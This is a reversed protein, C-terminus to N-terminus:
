MRPGAVRGADRLRGIEGGSLGLVEALIQDTHEGLLPARIPAERARQTFTAAAGPAPYREGSPHEM